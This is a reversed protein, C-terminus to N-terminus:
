LRNFIANLKTMIEIKFQFDISGRPANKEKIEGVNQCCNVQCIGFQGIERFYLKERGTEFKGLIFLQSTDLPDRKFKISHSFHLM